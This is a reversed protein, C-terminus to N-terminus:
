SFTGSIAKDKTTHLDFNTNKTPLNQVRYNYNNQSSPLLMCPFFPLFKPSSGHGYYFSAMLPSFHVVCVLISCIFTYYVFNWLVLQQSFICSKVDQILINLHQWIHFIYVLRLISSHQISARMEIVILPQSPM